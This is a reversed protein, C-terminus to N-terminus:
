LTGSTRRNFHRVWILTLLTNSWRLMSSAGFTAVPVISKARSRLSGRVQTQVFVMLKQNRRFQDDPSGHGRGFRALAPVVRASSFNLALCGGSLQFYGWVWRGLYVRLYEPAMRDVAM